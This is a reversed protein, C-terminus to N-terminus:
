FLEIEVEFVRLEVVYGMFYEGFDNFVFDLERKLFM